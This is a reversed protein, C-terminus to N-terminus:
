EHKLLNLYSFECPISVIFCAGHPHINRYSIHGNMAECFGKVISLGLGTGKSNSYAPRYFKDFIFPIDEEKIGQGNDSVECVVEATTCYIRLGIKCSTENHNIANHLLNLLVVELLSSDVKCIPLEEPTHLQFSHNKFDISHVIAYSLEQMDTWDTKIKFQGSELRSMNLLNEVQRNLRWGNKEIDKLLEIKQNHDLKDNQEILHEVTGVITSIPTRLEHSLSNLITNYLLLTEEKKKEEHLSKETIRIKRTLVANIAAILFYLCFMLLDEASDIHFTYIPPIFFFNWILAGITTATLVPIIDFLMALISSAMMMVLASSKYSQHPILLFCAAAVLAM